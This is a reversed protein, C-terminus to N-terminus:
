PCSGALASGARMCVAGACVCVRVALEGAGPARSRPFLFQGSGADGQFAASAYMTASCACAAAHSAEACGPRERPARRCAPTCDVPAGWGRSRRLGSVSGKAGTDEGRGDRVHKAPVAAAGPGQAGGRQRAARPTCHPTPMSSSLPPRCARRRTRARRPCAPKARRLAACGRQRTCAVARRSVRRGLYQALILLDKFLQLRCAAPPARVLQAAAHVRQQPAGRQWFAMNAFRTQRGSAVKVAKHMVKKVSAEKFVKDMSAM